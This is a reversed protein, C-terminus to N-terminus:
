WIWLNSVVEMLSYFAVNRASIPNDIHSMAIWSFYHMRDWVNCNLIFNNEYCPACSLLVVFIIIEDWFDSIMLLINCLLFMQFALNGAPPLVRLISTHQSAVSLHFINKRYTICFCIRGWSPFNFQLLKSNPIKIKDRYQFM